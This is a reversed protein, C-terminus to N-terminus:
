TFYHSRAGDPHSGEPDANQTKNCFTGTQVDTCISQCLKSIRRQWPSDLCCCIHGSYLPCLEAGKGLLGNLIQDADPLAVFLPLGILTPGGATSRHPRCGYTNIQTSVSIQKHTPLHLRRHSQLTQIM